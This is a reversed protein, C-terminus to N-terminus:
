PPPAPSWSGRDGACRAVEAAPVAGPYHREITYGYPLGVRCTWTPSPLSPCDGAALLTGGFSTCLLEENARRESSMLASAVTCSREPTALRDCAVRQPTQPRGPTNGATFTGGMAACEAEAEAPTDLV